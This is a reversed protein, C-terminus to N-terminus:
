HNLVKIVEMKISKYSKNTARNVKPSTVSQYNLEKSKGFSNNLAQVFKKLDGHILIIYTLEILSEILYKITSPSRDKFRSVLIKEIIINDGNIIFDRLYKKGDVVTNDPVNNEAESELKVDESHNDQNENPQEDAVDNSEMKETHNAQIDDAQENTVENSKNTERVPPLALVAKLLDELIEDTDFSKGKKLFTKEIDILHTLLVLKQQRFIYTKDKEDPFYKYYIEVLKDCVFNLLVIQEVYKNFIHRFSTKGLTDKLGALKSCNGQLHLAKEGNNIIVSPDIDLPRIELDIDIILLLDVYEDVFEQTIKIGMFNLVGRVNESHLADFPLFFV